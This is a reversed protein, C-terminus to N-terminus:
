KSWEKNDNPCIEQVPCYDCCWQRERLICGWPNAEEEKSRGWKVPMTNAIETCLKQLKDKSMKIQYSQKDCLNQYEEQTLIYQM